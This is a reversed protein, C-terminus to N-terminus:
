TSRGPPRADAEGEFQASTSEHRHAGTIAVREDGIEPRNESFHM